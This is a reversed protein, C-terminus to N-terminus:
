ILANHLNIIAKQAAVSPCKDPGMYKIITQLQKLFHRNKWTTFELNMFDNFAKSESQMAKIKAVKKDFGAQFSKAFLVAKENKDQLLYAIASECAELANNQDKLYNQIDRYNIKDIAETAENILMEIGKHVYMKMANELLVFAATPECIASYSAYCNSIHKHINASSQLSLDGIAQMYQTILKIKFMHGETESMIGFLIANVFKGNPAKPGNIFNAPDLIDRLHVNTGKWLCTGILFNEYEELSEFMDKFNEHNLPGDSGCISM